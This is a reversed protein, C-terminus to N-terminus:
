MNSRFLQSSIKKDTVSDLLQACDREGTYALAEKKVEMCGLYVRVTQDTPAPPEAFSLQKEKQDIYDAASFQNRKNKSKAVKKPRSYIGPLEIVENEAKEEEFVKTPNSEAKKKAVAMNTVAAVTAPQPKPSRLLFFGAAMAALFGTIFLTDRM